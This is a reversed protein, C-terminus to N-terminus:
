PPLKIGSKSGDESITEVASHILLPKEDQGYFVEALISTRCAYSIDDGAAVVILEGSAMYAVKNVHEILGLNRPNSNLVLKHPGRYASTIERILDFTRDSSC